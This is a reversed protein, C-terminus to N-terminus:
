GHAAGRAQTLRAFVEEMRGSELTLQDIQWGQERVLATVADFLRGRGSPLATLRGSRLEVEAVEDLRGLASAVREPQDVTLSVAGCYRSQAMMGLPSDDLVCRGRHIVLVRNCVAEVEELVHTSIIIIRERAMARILQRVQQKQNPDLGDTPEDLILVSPDHMIAQALGVRRAFGKSLTAIRQPLVRQLSLAEVVYNFRQQRQEGELGRMAAIFSLFDAVTMEPYLPSGEPLYGMCRQARRRASVIDHGMIRVQGSGPRLYGTLMKMTTSKGAGNPGLFGLVTGTEVAFSLGDVARLPGYHRTLTDVQIMLIVAYLM